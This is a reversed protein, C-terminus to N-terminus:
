KGDNAGHGVYKFTAACSGESSVMCPGVPRLPTCGRGFLPCDQPTIIGKLVEGCRCRTDPEGPLVPVDLRLSADFHEFEERLGLGSAPITGIGRWSADVPELTAEFLAQARRNGEPRVVREYQNVLRAVGQSHQDIIEAIAMLIDLPEFGAVISPVGQDVYPRYAESGIIASVHAPMIFANVAVLPDALLADLAPPVLKFATLLSLNKVGQAQASPVLSVVPATTTEFGVGLFVVERGPNARALDLAAEPSYCVEVEAGNGRAEALTGGSGPVRVLDGFTAILHGREALTIAADIYGTDTVCVPCGPGSVLDVNEPLVDRIGYRAISMTHTGCVEMMRVRRGDAALTAGLAQIKAALARGADPDRFGDLYRM